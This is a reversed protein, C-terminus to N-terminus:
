RPLKSAHKLDAPRLRYCRSMCVRVSKEGAVPWQAWHKLASSSAINCQCGSGVFHFSVKLSPIKLFLSLVFWIRYCLFHIRLALILSLCCLIHSTILFILHHLVWKSLIDSYRNVFCLFLSSAVM